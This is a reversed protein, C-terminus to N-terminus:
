REVAGLAGEYLHIRQSRVRQAGEVAPEISRTSPQSADVEHPAAYRQTAGDGNEGSESM